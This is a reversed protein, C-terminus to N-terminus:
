LTFLKFLMVSSVSSMLPCQTVSTVGFPGSIVCQEGDDGLNLNLFENIPRKVPLRIQRGTLHRRHM